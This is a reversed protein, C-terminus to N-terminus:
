YLASLTLIKQASIFMEKTVALRVSGFCENFSSVTSLFGTPHTKWLAHNPFCFKLLFYLERIFVHETIEVFSTM